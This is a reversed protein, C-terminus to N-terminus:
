GTDHPPLRCPLGFANVDICLEVSILESKAIFRTAVEVMKPPM